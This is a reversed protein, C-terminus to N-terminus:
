TGDHSMRRRRLGEPFEGERFISFARASFCFIAPFQRETRLSSGAIRAPKRTDRASFARSARMPQRSMEPSTKRGWQRRCRRGSGSFGPMGGSATATSKGCRRAPFEAPMKRGRAPRGSRGGGAVACIPCKHRMLSGPQQRLSGSSSPAELRLAVILLCARILAMTGTGFCARLWIRSSQWSREADEGGRRHLSGCARRDVRSGACACEAGTAARATREPRIMAARPTPEGAATRLNSIKRLNAVM